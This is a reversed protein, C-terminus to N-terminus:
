CPDPPLVIKAEVAILASLKGRILVVFDPTDRGVPVTPFRAAAMLSEAFGYETFLQVNASDPDAIVPLDPAGVLKLFRDFHAFNGACVVMPLVTGTFFREKRNMPLATNLLDQLSM